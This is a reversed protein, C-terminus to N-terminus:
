VAKGDQVAKLKRAMKALYAATEKAPADDEAGDDKTKGKRITENKAISSWAQAVETAEKVSVPMFPEGGFLVIRANRRIVMDAMEEISKSALVDSDAAAAAAETAAGLVLSAQHRRQAQAEARKARSSDRSRKQLERAREPDGFGPAFGGKPPQPVLPSARFEELVAGLVIDDDDEVGFVDDDSM